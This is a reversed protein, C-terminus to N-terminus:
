VGLLSGSKKEDMGKRMDEVVQKFARKAQQKTFYPDGFRRGQKDTVEYMWKNRSKGKFKNKKKKLKVVRKKRGKKLTKQKLITM